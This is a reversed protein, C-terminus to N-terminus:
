AICIGIKDSYHAIVPLFPVVVNPTLYPCFTIELGMMKDAKM